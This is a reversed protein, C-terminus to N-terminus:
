VMPVPQVFDQVAANQLGRDDFGIVLFKSSPNLWDIMWTGDANSLTSAVPFLSDRELVLIRGRTPVNLIRFRGDVSAPSNPDSSTPALGAIFGAGRFAAHRTADFFGLLDTIM